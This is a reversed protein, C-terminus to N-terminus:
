SQPKFFLQMILQHLGCGQAYNWYPFCIKSANWFSARVIIEETLRRDKQCDNDHFTQVHEYSLKGTETNLLQNLLSNNRTALM